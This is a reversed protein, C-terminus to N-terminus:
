MKEVRGGSKQPWIQSLLCRTYEELSHASRQFALVRLAGLFLPIFSRNHSSHSHQNRPSRTFPKSNKWTPFIADLLRIGTLERSAHLSEALGARSLAPMAADLAQRLQISQVQTPAENLGPQGLETFTSIASRRGITRCNRPIPHLQIPTWSNGNPKM